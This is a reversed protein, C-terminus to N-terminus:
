QKPRVEPASLKQSNDIRIAAGPNLKLQGTTIVQEGPSVGSVIAVRDDRVQGTKVFRREAVLKAEGKTEAKGDGGPNAPVSKVAYISDGYLSYTVATRPVTVVDRAEGALVVVNAFMGPLLKRLKNPLSGRVLLTRTDQAVRADLSEIKGKFIKAPHADVTVEIEQGVRLKGILQEPIPFDVRIPDLQQLTVLMMGPTVYQGREVKRIGLRGSIPANITKQAIVAQIKNVAAVATDRKARAADLSAESTVRKAILDAQRQFAVEAEQLTAKSSALDALEVAIDLQVLKAGREADSGSELSVETVIGAVQSTIDVGHSSILTGIAPIREIWKEKRAAESTVTAPPPIQSSLITKIMNPKFVFNFWALGGLLLAAIIGIIIFRRSMNQAPLTILPTDDPTRPVEVPPDNSRWSAFAPGTLEADGEIPLVGSKHHPRLAADIADNWLSAASTDAAHGCVHRHM